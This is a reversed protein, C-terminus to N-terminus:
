NKIKSMFEIKLLDFDSLFSNNFSIWQAILETFTLSKINVKIDGKHNLYFVLTLKKM